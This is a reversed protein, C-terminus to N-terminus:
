SNLRGDLVREANGGLLARLQDDDSVARRVRRLFRQQDILPYDTGFLVKEPAWRLVHQFVADDYLFLSASTDYYVRALLPRARPMLEYFPLGGGWHPLIFTNHAYHIVMRYAEEPGHRGKGPYTHGVLENVHIMLPANRERALAMLPDLLTFDTLSFGQGDPMLEGIGRAGAELGRQAETLAQNGAVPNVVLFPILREPYRQWSALVYDNCLRCLGMDAFAFGFVVSRDIGAEDMAVLLEEVAVMRARPHGYLLGFWRDARCTQDRRSILEPPFIHVHADIITM